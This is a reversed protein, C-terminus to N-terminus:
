KATQCDSSYKRQSRNNARSECFESLIKIYYAPSWLSECVEKQLPVGEIQMQAGFCIRFIQYVLKNPTHDENCSNM